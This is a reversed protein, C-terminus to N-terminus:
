GIRVRILYGIKGTGLRPTRDAQLRQQELVLPQDIYNDTALIRALAIIGIQDLCPPNSQPLCNYV